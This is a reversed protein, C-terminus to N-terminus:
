SSPRAEHEIIRPDLRKDPRKRRFGVIDDLADRARQERELAAAGVGSSQSVGDCPPQVGELTARACEPEPRERVEHVLHLSRERLNRDVGLHGTRDRISQEGREIREDASHPDRPGSLRRSGLM